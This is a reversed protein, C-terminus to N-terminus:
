NTLILQMRTALKGSKSNNLDHWVNSSKEVPSIAVFNGDQHIRNITTMQEKSFGVRQEIADLLQDFGVLRLKGDLATPYLINFSTASRWQTSLFLLFSSELTARSLLVSGEFAGPDFSELAKKFLVYGEGFVGFAKWIQDKLAEHFDKWIQEGIKEPHAL